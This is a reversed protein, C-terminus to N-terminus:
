RMLCSCGQASTGYQGGHQEREGSLTGSLSCRLTTILFLVKAVTFINDGHIPYDGLRSGEKVCQDDGRRGDCNADTEKYSHPLLKMRPYYAICTPLPLMPGCM